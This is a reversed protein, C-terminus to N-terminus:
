AGLPTLVWCAVSFATCEARGQESQVSPCATRLNNLHNTGGNRRSISHDIHRSRRTVRRGCYTCRWDDRQSVHDRKWAELPQTNRRRTQPRNPTKFCEDLIWAAGFFAGLIGAADLLASLLSPPSQRAKLPELLVAVPVFQGTTILISDTVHLQNSQVTRFVGYRLIYFDGPHM